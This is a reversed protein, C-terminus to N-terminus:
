KLSEIKSVIKNKEMREREREVAQRKQKYDRIIAHTDVGKNKLITIFEANVWKLYQVEDVLRENAEKLHEVKTKLVKVKNDFVYQNYEKIADWVSKYETFKRTGFFEMLVMQPDLVLFQDEQTVLVKKVEDPVNQPNIM